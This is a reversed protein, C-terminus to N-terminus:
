KLVPMGETQWWADMIADELSKPIKSTSILYQIEASLTFLSEMDDLNASQFRRNIEPRLDNHEIFRQFASSTIAFGDPVNLKLNNKLEGLNAMKSGVLDTMNKDITSLPIVLREDTMPKEHTLLRDIEEKIGKFITNLERYKGPALLDLNEIMKFVNVAIATCRSRVFTMGFPHEGKLAQELEAM